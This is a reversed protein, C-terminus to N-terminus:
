EYLSIVDYLGNLDCHPLHATFPYRYEGPMDELDFQLLLGYEDILFSQNEPLAKLEDIFPYQKAYTDKLVSLLTPAYEDYPRGLFSELTLSEGTSLEFVRKVEKFDHQGLTDSISAFISMSLYKSNSLSISSSKWINNSNPSSAKLQTELEKFDKRIVENIHESAHPNLPNKVFILRQSDDSKSPMKEVLSFPSQLGFANFNVITKRLQRPSCVQRDVCLAQTTFHQCLDAFDTSPYMDCTRKIAEFWQSEPRNWKDMYMGEPGFYLKGILRNYTKNMRYSIYDSQRQKIPEELLLIDEILTNYDNEPYAVNMNQLKVNVHILARVDDSFYKSYYKLKEWNPEIVPTEEYTVIRLFSDSLTQYQVKLDADDISSIKDDDWTNNMKWFGEIRGDVLMNSWANALTQQELLLHSLVIDAEDPASEELRTDMFALIDRATPRSSILESFAQIFVMQECATGAQTPFDPNESTEYSRNQGLNTDTPAEPFAQADTSACSTLLLALISVALVYKRSNM